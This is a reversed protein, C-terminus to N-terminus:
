ARSNRKSTIEFLTLERYLDEDTIHIHIEASIIEESVVLKQESNQEIGM